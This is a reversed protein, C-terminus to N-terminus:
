KLKYFTKSNKKLLKKYLNWYYKKAIVEWRYDKITTLGNNILLNRLESVEIIKMSYEFLQDLDDVDSIFSNVGHKIIYLAMGVKTSVIPVGTAM